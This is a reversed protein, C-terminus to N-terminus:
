LQQEEIVPVINIIPVEYPHATRLAAIVQRANTRDCIVEIKEEQVTALQNAKGLYPHAKPSPM